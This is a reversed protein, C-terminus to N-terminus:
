IESKLNSIEFRLDGGLGSALVAPVVTCIYRVNDLLRNLEIELAAWCLYRQYCAKDSQNPQDVQNSWGASVTRRSQPSVRGM